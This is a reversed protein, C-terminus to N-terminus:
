LTSKCRMHSMVQMLMLRCVDRQHHALKGLLSYKGRQVVTWQREGAAVSSRMWGV